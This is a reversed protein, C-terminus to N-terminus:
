LLYYLGHRTLRDMALGRRSRRDVYSDELLYMGRLKSSSNARHNECEMVRQEKVVGLVCTRSVGFYIRDIKGSKELSYRTRRM